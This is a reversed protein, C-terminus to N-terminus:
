SDDCFNHVVVFSNKYQNMIETLARLEQPPEKKAITWLKQKEKRHNMIKTISREFKEPREHGKSHNM